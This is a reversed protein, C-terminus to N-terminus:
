RDYFLQSLQVSNSTGRSTWSIKITVRIESSNISTFQVERKYVSPTWSSDYGYAGTTSNINLNPCTGFGGSCRTLNASSSNIDLMCTNGFYCPDSGVSSLGYLWDRANGGINNLVNEDRINRIYEMGEQVLYFAVTRDKSLGSNQLGGTVAGFTALVSLSLIAVAVLTEVITFGNTLKNTKNTYKM